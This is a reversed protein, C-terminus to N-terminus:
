QPVGQVGIRRALLALCWRMWEEASDLSVSRSLCKKLAKVIEADSPVPAAPKQTEGVQVKRYTAVEGAGMDGSGYVVVESPMGAGDEDGGHWVASELTFRRGCPAYVPKVKGAPPKQALAEDLVRFSERLIDLSSEGVGKWKLLWDPMRVHGFTCERLCELAEAPTLKRTTM